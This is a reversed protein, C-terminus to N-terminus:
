PVRKEYALLVEGKKDNIRKVTVQKLQGDVRTQSSKQYESHKKYASPLRVQQGLFISKFEKTLLKEAVIFEKKSKDNDSQHFFV